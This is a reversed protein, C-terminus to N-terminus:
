FHYDFGLMATTVKAKNFYNSELKLGWSTGLALRLALGINAETEYYDPEARLSSDMRTRGIGLKGLLDFRENIPLIGVASVGYNFSPIYEQKTAFLTINRAFGLTILQGEIAFNRSFQYGIRTATSIDDIDGSDKAASYHSWGSDFNIYAGAKIDANAYSTLLYLTLACLLRMSTRLYIQAKHWVRITAFIVAIACISEKKKSKVFLICCLMTLLPWGLCVVARWAAVGSIFITAFLLFGSLPFLVGGQV